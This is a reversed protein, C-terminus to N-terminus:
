GLVPDGQGQQEWCDDAIAEELLCTGWCGKVDTLASSRQLAQWIGERNSGYILCIVDNSTM